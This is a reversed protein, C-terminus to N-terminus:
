YESYACIYVLIGLHQSEKWKTNSCDLTHVVGVVEVVGVGELYHYCKWEARGVSDKM